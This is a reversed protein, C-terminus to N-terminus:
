LSPGPGLSVQGRARGEEEIAVAYEILVGAINVPDLVKDPNRAGPLGNGGELGSAPPNKHHGVLGADPAAIIGLCVHRDQVVV